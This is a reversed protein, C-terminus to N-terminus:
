GGVVKRFVCLENITEKKPNNKFVCLKISNYNHTSSQIPYEISIHHPMQENTAYLLSKVGAGSRLDEASDPFKWSSEEVRWIFLFVTRLGVTTKRKMSNEREIKKRLSLVLPFIKKKQWWNKPRKM